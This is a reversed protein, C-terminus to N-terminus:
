VKRLVHLVLLSRHSLAEKDDLGPAFDKWQRLSGLPNHEFYVLSNLCPVGLENVLWATTLPRKSAELASAATTCIYRTPHVYFPSVRVQLGLTSSSSMSDLNM